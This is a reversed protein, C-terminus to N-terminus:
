RSVSSSNSTAAEVVDSAAGVKAEDITLIRYLSCGGILVNVADDRGLDQIRKLLAGATFLNPSSWVSLINRGFRIKRVNFHSLFFLFVLITITFGFTIPQWPKM